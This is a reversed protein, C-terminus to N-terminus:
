RREIGLEEYAKMREKLYHKLLWCPDDFDFVTAKEKGEAVRLIRGVYQIVRGDYKLPLCLFISSIHKMDFGEGILQGTAILIRTERNNLSERVEKRVSSPSESTLLSFELDLEEMMQALNWCHQKRDSVVLITGDEKGYQNLVYNAILWNRDWDEVMENIVEPREAPSTVQRNFQTTILKLEAKMIHGKDQLEKTDIKHLTNGMFFNIVAGLGDRRYPTASLGLMYKCELNILFKTFLTSPVRHCEDVIVMGFKNLQHPYLKALSNIIGVTVPLSVIKHGDGVLGVENLTTFELLRERWQYLLEKTHVVILTPQRRMMMLWIAMITKGSGTPAQLVGFWELLMAGCAKMQFDHLTFNKCQFCYGKEEHLKFDYQAGMINLEDMIDKM